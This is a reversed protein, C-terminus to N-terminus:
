LTLQLMWERFRGVARRYYFEFSEERSKKQAPSVFQPSMDRVRMWFWAQKEPLYFVGFTRSVFVCQVTIM